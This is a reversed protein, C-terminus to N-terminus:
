KGKQANLGLEFFYRAFAIIDEYDEEFPWTKEFYQNVEKELDINEKQDKELDVKKTGLTDIYSLLKECVYKQAKWYSLDTKGTLMTEAASKLGEIKAVLENKDIYQAM